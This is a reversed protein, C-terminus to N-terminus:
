KDCQALLRRAYALSADTVFAKNVWLIWIALAVLYALGLVIGAEFRPSAPGGIWLLGANCLSALALITLAVPKLGRLNRRFGYAINEDLLLSKDTDGRTHELLWEVASVCQSHAKAPDRREQAATPITIGRGTLYTHYRAKSAEPLTADSHTLLTASHPKGIASGWRAELRRGRQRAIQGLLFTAGCAILLSALAGFTTWVNPYWIAVLLLAPLIVLLAPRLRANRDYRDLGMEKLTSEFGM